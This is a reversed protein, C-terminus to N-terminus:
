HVLCTWYSFLEIVIEVIYCFDLLRGLIKKENKKYTFESTFNGTSMMNLLGM